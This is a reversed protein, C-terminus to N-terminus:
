PLTVEEGNQFGAPVDPPCARPDALNYLSPINDSRKITAGVELVTKLKRVRQVPDDDRLEDAFSSRGLFYAALGSVSGAAYSVGRVEAPPRYKGDAQPIRLDVAPAHVKIVQTREDPDVRSKKWLKGDTEVGGVVMMDPVDPLLGYALLQPYLGVPPNDGEGPRANGSPAIPLLGISICDNLVDRLDAIWGNQEEETTLGGNREYVGRWDEYVQRVGDLRAGPDDLSPVRVIVPNSRKAIGHKWGAAKALVGTGHGVGKMDTEDTNSPGPKSGRAHLWRKYPNVYRSFEDSNNLGAGTDIIYITVGAGASKDYVFDEFDDVTKGDPLSLYVMEPEVNHSNVYGDDRKSLRSSSERGVAEGFTRSSITANQEVAEETPDAGACYTTCPRYISSVNPDDRVKQANESTLPAAIFLTRRDTDSVYIDNENEVLTKLLNKVATAQGKDTNDKLFIGYGAIEDRRVVRSNENTSSNGKTLEVDLKKVINSVNPDDEVKKANEATLPAAIFSTRKESGSRYIDKENAVLTKLLNNIATAQDKNTNDKPFVAYNATDDRKSTPSPDSLSDKPPLANETPDNCNINDQQVVNAVNPEARVKEAEEPTLPVSFFLAEEGTNCIYVKDEDKVFTMLSTKIAAAQGADTSDRTTVVYNGKDVRELNAQDDSISGEHPIGYAVLSLCPILKLFSPFPQHLIRM